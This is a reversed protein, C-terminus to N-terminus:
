PPDSRPGQRDAAAGQQAASEEVGLLLRFEDEVARMAPYAKSRFQDAAKEWADHMAKQAQNSFPEERVHVAFRRSPLLIADMLDDIKKATQPAFYIRKLRWYSQLEAFSQSLKNLKEKKPPDGEFEFETVFSEGDGVAAVLREYLERVVTAREDHLRSTRLEWARLEASILARHTELDRAHNAKVSEIKDTIEAIDEKTAHGHVPDKARYSSPNKQAGGKKAEQDRM